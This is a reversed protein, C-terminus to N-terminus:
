THVKIQFSIFTLLFAPEKGMLVRLIVLLPQLQELLPGKSEVAGVHLAWLMFMCM